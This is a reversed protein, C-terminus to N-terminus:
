KVISQSLRVPTDDVTQISIHYNTINHEDTNKVIKTKYRNDNLNFNNIDEDSANKIYLIISNMYIKAQLHLYKLNNLNTSFTNNQVISFSFLGFLVVLFMTILLAYASKKNM